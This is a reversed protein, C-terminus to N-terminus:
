TYFIKVQCIIAYSMLFLFNLIAFILTLRSESEWDSPPINFLFLAIPTCAKFIPYYLGSMFFSGFTILGMAYAIAQLQLYRKERACKATYIIFANSASLFFFMEIISISEPYSPEVFSWYGYEITVLVVNIICLAIFIAGAKLINDTYLKEFKECIPQPKGMDNIAKEYATKEDYGIEIYFDAKDCIHSTLEDKLERKIEDHIKEPVSSNIYEVVNEPLQM